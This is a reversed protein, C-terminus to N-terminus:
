RRQLRRLAKGLRAVEDFLQADASQQWDGVHPVVKLGAGDGTTWDIQVDRVYDTFTAGGALVATVIDGVQFTKGFRFVGTEILELDLDVKLGNDIFAQDARKQSEATIDDTLAVDSADVFAELPEGVATEAATNTFQRFIRATDTGGVGVIVRTATIEDQSFTGNVVIGSGETLPHPYTAPQRITVERHSGNQGIEVIIGAQDVAPFLKDALYDMRFQCTISSGRGATTPVTLPQGLRTVYNKRIVDLAVTEAPGTIKYYAQASQNDITSTPNPWATTTNLITWDDRVTFTRTATGTHGEGARTQVRGSIMRMWPADDAYRYSVVVRTGSTELDAVRPHDAKVTFTCDGAANRRKTVSVSLPTGVFGTRVYNKTWVEIQIPVAAAM